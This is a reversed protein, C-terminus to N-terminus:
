SPVGGVQVNVSANQAASTSTGMTAGSLQQRENWFKFQSRRFRERWQSRQSGGAGGDQGTLIGKLTTALRVAEANRLYVVNINGDSATPTDLSAVLSRIQKAHPAAESRVLLQNGRQDSVVM